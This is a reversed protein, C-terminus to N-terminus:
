RDDLGRHRPDRRGGHGGGDCVRAPEARESDAGHVGVGGTRHDAGETGQGIPWEIDIHKTM